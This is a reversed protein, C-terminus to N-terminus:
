KGGTVKLVFATLDAIQQPTLQNEFSPMGGGGKQIQRIVKARLKADPIRTLDPGGNGGHGSIGHCASCIAKYLGQGRTVDGNKANSDDTNEGAHQVGAGTGAKAVPGLRGDLGFLM